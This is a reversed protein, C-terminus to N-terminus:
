KLAETTINNKYDNIMLSIIEDRSVMISCSLRNIMKPPLQQLGREINSITQGNRTSWGMMSNLKGQSLNLESRKQKILKALENSRSRM